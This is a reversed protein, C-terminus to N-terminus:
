SLPPRDAHGDASQDVRRGMSLRVWRTAAAHLAGPQGRRTAPQWAADPCHPLAGLGGAAESREQRYTVQRRAEAWLTKRKADAPARNRFKYGGGVGAGDGHEGGAWLTPRLAARPAQAGM